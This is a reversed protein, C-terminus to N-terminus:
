QNKALDEFIERKEDDLKEFHRMLKKERLSEDLDTYKHKKSNKYFDYATLKPKTKRVVTPLPNEHKELRSITSQVFKIQTPFLSTHYDRLFNKLNEIYQLREQKADQKAQEVQPDSGKHFALSAGKPMNAFHFGKASAYLNYASKPRKPFHPHHKVSVEDEIYGMVIKLSEIMPIARLTAATKYYERFATQFEKPDIGLNIDRLLAEFSTSSKKKGIKIEGKEEMDLLTKCLQHMEKSSVSFKEAPEDDEFGLENDEDLKKSHKPNNSNVVSVEDESPPLFKKIEPPDHDDKENFDLNKKRALKRTGNGAEDDETDPLIPRKRKEESKFGYDKLNRSPSGVEDAMERKHKKGMWAIYDNIYNFPIIEYERNYLGM